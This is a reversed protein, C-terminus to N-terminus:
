PSVCAYESIRSQLLLVSTRAPGSKVRKAQKGFQACHREARMDAIGIQNVAHEIVIGDPDSSIQACGSGAAAIMVLGLFGMMAGPKKVNRNSYCHRSPRHLPPERTAVLRNSPSMPLEAIFGVRRWAMPKM